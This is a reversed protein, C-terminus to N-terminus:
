SYKLFPKIILLFKYFSKNTFNFRNTVVVNANPIINNVIIVNFLLTYQYIYLANVLFERTEVGNKEM